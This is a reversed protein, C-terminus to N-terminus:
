KGFRRQRKQYEEIAEELKEASFDPMLVDTFYLETYVSQWPLLGSLRKEGGPRILLDPDPLEATDLHRSIVEETIDESKLKGSTVKSAVCQLARTIENRGGYNLAYTVTIKTNHKSAEIMKLIGDQIDQPFKSLDGIIKLRAGKKIFRKAQNELAWRFLKMIGIVESEKRNWNESSWAWLTLYEVGMQGAKDILEEVNKETVRKHGAFPNLGKLKAWRRNGDMVIAIHKPINNESM